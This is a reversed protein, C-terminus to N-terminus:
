KHSHHYCEFNRNRSAIKDYLSEWGGNDKIWDEHLSITMQLWFSVEGIRNGTDHMAICRDLLAKIFLFLGIFQGWTVERIFLADAVDKYDLYHTPANAKFNFNAFLEEDDKKVPCGDVFTVLTEVICYHNIKTSNLLRDRWYYCKSKLYKDIFGSCIHYCEDPM